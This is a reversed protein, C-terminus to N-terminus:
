GKHIKPSQADQELGVTPKFKCAMRDRAACCVAVSNIMGGAEDPLEM